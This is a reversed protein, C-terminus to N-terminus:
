KIESLSIFGIAYFIVSFSLLMGELIYMLVSVAPNQIIEYLVCMSSCMFVVGLIFTFIPEVISEFKKM